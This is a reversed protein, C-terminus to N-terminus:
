TFNIEKKDEISLNIIIVENRKFYLILYLNDFYNSQSKLLMLYINEDVYKVNVSKMLQVM